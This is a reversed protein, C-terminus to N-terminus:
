AGVEAKAKGGKAPASESASTAKLRLIEQQLRKNEAVFKELENITVLKAALNAKTAAHAAQEERLQEALIESERNSQSSLTENEVLIHAVAQKIKEPILTSNRDGLDAYAILTRCAARATEIDMSAM